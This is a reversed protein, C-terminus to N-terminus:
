NTFWLRVPMLHWDIIRLLRKNTEEDIQIVQGEHGAFAQFAADADHSHKLITEAVVSANRTEGSKNNAIADVLAAEKNEGNESPVTKEPDAEMDDDDIM